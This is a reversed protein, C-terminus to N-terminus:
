TPYVDEDTEVKWWEGFYNVVLNDQTGAGITLRWCFQVGVDPM